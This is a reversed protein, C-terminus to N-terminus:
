LGVEDQMINLYPKQKLKGEGDSISFSLNEKISALVKKIETLVENNSFRLIKVSFDEIINQRAIDYNKRKSHISGDLEIGLKSEFCYFDLIFGHFIHQRRFKKNFFNRDKLHRWLAAEAKTSEKRLERARLIKPLKNKHKM